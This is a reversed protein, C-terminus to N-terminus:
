KAIPVTFYLTTGQGLKSELWIKGGHKEVIGKAIYLGLGSGDTEVKMANQARFFRKFIKEKDEPPIGIGSDKISLEVFNGEAKFSIEIKGKNFTYKVANEILNQLVARMKETDIMVKPLDRNNGIFSVQIEKKSIASLIEFLVSDVLDIIQTPAFRYKVKDSNIRDAGLMDNILIIMRENSEYCKMLFSKQETTIHGLTGGLVMNLTWKVGSLPTRLQHAAISIFESKDKDLKSLKENARTLELDRRILMKGSSEQDSIVKELKKVNTRYYTVKKGLTLVAALLVFVAGTLFLTIPNALFDYM